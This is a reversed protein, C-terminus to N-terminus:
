HQSIRWLGYFHFPRLDNDLGRGTARRRALFRQAKWPPPCSLAPVIFREEVEWPGNATTGRAVCIAKGSGGPATADRSDKFAMLHNGSKERVISADIVSFGPDFFPEPPSFDRWNSTTVSRIRHNWDDTANPQGTASSWVLRYLRAEEDWFAEPAWVNRVGLVGQMVLLLEEDRWEILHDSVAHWISDSRWSNTSFAHFLGM